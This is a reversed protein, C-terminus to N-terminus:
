DKAAIVQNPKQSCDDACAPAHLPEKEATRGADSGQNARRDKQSDGIGQGNDANELKFKEVGEKYGRRYEEWYAERLPMLAMELDLPDPPFSVPM